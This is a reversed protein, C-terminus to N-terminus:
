SAHRRRVLSTLERVEPAGLALGLAVYVGLGVISLGALWGALLFFDAGQGYASDLAIGPVYPLSLWTGGLLVLALGITGGVLALVSRTLQAAEFGHLRGTLLGFLVVFEIVNTISYSLAILGIDRQWYSILAWALIGNLVITLVGVVVPTRTDEMAYFTRIVIEAGALGIAGPTYFLLARGTLRLAEADFDGRQFLLRVIPVHMVALIAAAPVTLWLVTRLTQLAVHRVDAFQANAYLRTLRPFMVTGMSVALIGHPLMLLQYAYGNAAQASPSLLSMLSIMVIINIQLASQGVLRPALLAGVRIVEPMRWNLSPKFRLGAKIVGPLQVLFYLLAGVAVGIALGDIGYRPALFLAAAILSLNYINFAIAPLTFREFTQLLAMMLGGLGLLLPQVLMLRMLHVALNLMAPDDAYGRAVTYALLPRAFIAVLGAILVFALFATTLITNALEWARDEQQEELLRGFVPILASGLAGGIIVFYLLDPIAFAARFAGLEPQVGFRASIIGDRVVGLLRSLIAGLMVVGTNLVMRWRASRGTISSVQSM